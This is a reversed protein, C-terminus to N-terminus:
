KLFFYGAQIGFGSVPLQGIGIGKRAIQIWPEIRLTQKNKFYKEYGASVEISAALYSQNDNYTALMPSNIGNRFIIYDNIEKGVVFTSM